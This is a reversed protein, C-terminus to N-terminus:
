ADNRLWKYFDEVKDVLWGGAIWATICNFIRFGIEDISVLAFLAGFIVISLLVSYIIAKTKSM